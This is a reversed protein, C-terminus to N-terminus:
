RDELRLMMFADSVLHLLFSVQSKPCRVREVRRPFTRVEYKQKKLKESLDFKESELTLLWEWLESAKEKAKEENLNDVILPKRRDALIKKKKERETQKKVGKKGKVRQQVGGYQQTRNTLAKKKKIDEDQRKQADELEKREKEECKGPLSVIRTVLAVLEAEDNKRQIFHAEILSQLETLDKEQRKRHIDQLLLSAIDNTNCTWQAFTCFLTEVTFSQLLDRSNM